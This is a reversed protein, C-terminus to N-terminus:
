LRKPYIAPVSTSGRPARCCPLFYVRPAGIGAALRCCEIGLRCFRGAPWARCGWAADSGGLSTLFRYGKGADWWLFFPWKSAFQLLTNRTFESNRCVSLAANRWISAIRSVALLGGFIMREQPKLILAGFERSMADVCDTATESVSVNENHGCNPLIKDCVGRGCHKRTRM